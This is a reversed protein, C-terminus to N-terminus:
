RHGYRNRHDHNEGFNEPQRIKKRPGDNAVASVVLYAIALLVWGIMKPNDYM